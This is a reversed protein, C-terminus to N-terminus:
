EALSLDAEDRGLLMARAGGRSAGQWVRDGYCGPSAGTLASTM